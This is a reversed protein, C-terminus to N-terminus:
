TQISWIQGYSSGPFHGTGARPDAGVPNHTGALATSARRKYTTASRVPHKRVQTTSVHPQPSAPSTSTQTCPRVQAAKGLIEHSSRLYAQDELGPPPPPTSHLRARRVFVPAAPAAPVTSLPSTLPNPFHPATPVHRHHSRPIWPLPLQTTADASAVSHSPTQAAADLHLTPIPRACTPCTQGHAPPPVSRDM